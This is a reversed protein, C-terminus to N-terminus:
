GSKALVCDSKRASENLRGLWETASAEASVYIKAGEADGHEECAIKMERYHSIQKEWWWTNGKEASM